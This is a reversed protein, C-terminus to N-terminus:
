RGSKATSGRSRPSICWGTRRAPKASCPRATSRWSRSPPAASRSAAASPSSSSMAAATWRASPSLGLDTVVILRSDEATAYADNDDSRNRDRVPDWSLLRLLFVGRKGTALYQSLDVGEYHADGPKGAPFAHKESFREVINDAGFQGNLEPHSYTGNNLSVLHQLQEPLVRGIELKMGPM